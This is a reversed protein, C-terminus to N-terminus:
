GLFQLRLRFAYQPSGTAGVVSTSYTINQGSTSYFNGLLAAQEGQATLSFPTSNLGASTTGNNWSVNVAVTGATGATTVIVDAYVVYIGAGGAGVALLTTTGISATQGLLTVSTISTGGGISGIVGNVVGHFSGTVSDYWLAGNTPSNSRGLVPDVRPAFQAVDITLEDAKFNPM